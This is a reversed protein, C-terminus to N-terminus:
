STNPKKNSSLSALFGRTWLHVMMTSPNIHRKHLSFLDSYLINRGFFCYLESWKFDMRELGFETGRSIVTARNTQYRYYFHYSDSLLCPRWYLRRTESIRWVKGTKRMGLTYALQQRHSMSRLKFSRTEGLSPEAATEAKMRRCLEPCGRISIITPFLYDSKVEKLPTCNHTTEEISLWSYYGQMLVLFDLM